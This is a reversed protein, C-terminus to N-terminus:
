ILFITVESLRTVAIFLVIFLLVIAKTTIPVLSAVWASLRNIPVYVCSTMLFTCSIMRIFILVGFTVYIFSM